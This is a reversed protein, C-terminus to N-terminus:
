GLLDNVNVSPAKWEDQETYSATIIDSDVPIIEMTPTEYAKMIKEGKM